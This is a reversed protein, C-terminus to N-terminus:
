AKVKLEAAKKAALEVALKAGEDMKEAMYVGPVNAEQLIKRGAECLRYIL